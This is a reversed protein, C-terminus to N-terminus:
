SVFQQLKELVRTPVHEAVTDINEALTTLLEFAAPPNVHRCILEDDVALRLRRLVEFGVWVDDISSEVASIKGARLFDDTEILYFLASSALRRAQSSLELDLSMRRYLHFLVPLQDFFRRATKGFKEEFAHGEAIVFRLYHEQLRDLADHTM